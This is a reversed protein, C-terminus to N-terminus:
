SGSSRDHNEPYQVSYGPTPLVIDYINYKGDNIDEKTVVHTETTHRQKVDEAGDDDEVSRTILVVDGPVVKLGFLKIRCSTVCNWVYSQYAHGYMIRLNRPIGMIANFYSRDLHINVM